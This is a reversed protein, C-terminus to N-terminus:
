NKSNILNKIAPTLCLIILIGFTLNIVNPALDSYIMKQILSYEVVSDKLQSAAISAEFSTRFTDYIISTIIWFLVLIGASIYSIKHKSLPKQKDKVM